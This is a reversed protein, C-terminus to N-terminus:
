RRIDQQQQLGGQSALPDSPNYPDIFSDVIFIVALITIGAVVLMGAIWLLIEKASEFM